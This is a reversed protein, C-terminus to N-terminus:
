AFRRRFRVLAVAFFAASLALMVALPVWLDGMGGGEVLLRWGRVAWGHPVLLSAVAFPRQTAAPAGATFTSMMGVMGAITMAGGVVIGGQRSTKLLSIVFLGTSAALLVTGATLVAIPVPAGWDIGFALASLVLLVVVQLLLTVLSSLIRGGLIAALPTPTTFLRPLTGAEEELLLSQAASAGTFFVYFVMMGSMIVSVVSVGADGPEVDRAGVPHVAVLSGQGGQQAEGQNMAWAAFQQALFSARAPDLALGVEALQGRAVEAAMKSGAFGDVFQHVIGTVLGPGITLTPDHYVEVSAQGGPQLLVQTFSAPIIVAVDAQQRDVASRAAELDPANTVLLLDALSESRLVDALLKGASLGGSEPGPEDLNVLKVSTPPLSWGGGDAGIGRFAFYFLTSVLLPVLLGFALFSLSRVARVLDRIAIDLAKM